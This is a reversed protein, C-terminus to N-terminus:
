KVISEMLMAGVRDNFFIIIVAVKIFNIQNNLINKHGKCFYKGAM